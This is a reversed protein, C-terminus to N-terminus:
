MLMFIESQEKWLDITKIENVNPEQSILTRFLAINKFKQDYSDDRWFFSSEVLVSGMSFSRPNVTFTVNYQWLIILSTVTLQWHMEDRM